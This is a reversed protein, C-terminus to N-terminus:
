ILNLYTIVVKPKYKRKIYQEPDEDIHDHYYIKNEENISYDKEPPSPVGIKGNANSYKSSRINIIRDIHEALNPSLYSRELFEDRENKPINLKSLKLNKKM